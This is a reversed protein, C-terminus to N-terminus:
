AIAQLPRWADPLPHELPLGRPVGAADLAQLFPEGRMVEDFTFRVVQLGQQVLRSERNREERLVEATTRGGMMTPDVMKGYGDLEGVTHLVMGGRRHRWRYDVRYPGKHGPVHFPVQLDPRLVGHELMVARTYSEGGNESRADAHLLVQKAYRVGRHGHRILGIRRSVEAPDLCGIAAVSDAIGLARRFPLGVMSEYATEVLPTVRVGDIVTYSEDQRNHAMIAGAPRTADAIVHVCGVDRWSVYMGHMLAASHSCFVWSPHKRALTRILVRSRQLPDLGKWYSARAYLGRHPSLIEGRLIRRRILRALTENDTSLLLGEGEEETLMENLAREAITTM